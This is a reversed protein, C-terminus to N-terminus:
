CFLTSVGTCASVVAFAKRSWLRKMTVDVL